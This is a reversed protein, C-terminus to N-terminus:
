RRMPFVARSASSASASSLNEEWPTFTPYRMRRPLRGFLFPDDVLPTIVDITVVVARDEDLRFVAADEAKDFGALLRPDGPVPLAGLVQRLM